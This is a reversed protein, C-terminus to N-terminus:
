FNGGVSFHVRNGKSGHALDVRIPGVPTQVSLGLGISEHFHKPSWGSDWAAGFDTFLAGQVKSVIPFRYEVSGIFMNNGRFQDDRYGRLTTQGGIRYENAETINGFGRGYMGRLAFVQAHGAKIYHNEEVTFKRFNFDGGFGGFEGSFSLRDGTMPFYVNDRTDTVHMLTISRTLGFNKDRWEKSNVINGKADPAL